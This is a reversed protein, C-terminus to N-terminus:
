GALDSTRTQGFGAREKNGEGRQNTPSTERVFRGDLAWVVLDTRSEIALKNMINHLHNKVTQQAIGLARAVQKNSKGNVVLQVVEQERATLPPITRKRAAPRARDIWEVLSREWGEPYARGGSALLRLARAVDAIAADKALLGRVDARLADIVDSRAQRPALILAPIQPALCAAEIARSLPEFGIVLVDAEHTEVLAHLEPLRTAVGLVEMGDEGELLVALGAALAVSKDAIICRIPPHERSTPTDQASEM